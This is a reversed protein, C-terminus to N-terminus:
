HGAQAAIEAKQRAMIWSTVIDQEETSPQYECPPPMKAAYLMALTKNLADFRTHLSAEDTFLDLRLGKESRDPGHCPYCYLALVPEVTQHFSEWSSATQARQPSPAPVPSAAFPASSVTAVGPRRSQSCAASLAALAAVILSSQLLASPASGRKTRPWARNQAPHDM